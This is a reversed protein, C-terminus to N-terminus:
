AGAEAAIRSVVVKALSDYDYGTRRTVLDNVRTLLADDRQPLARAMKTLGDATASAGAASLIEAVENLESPGYTDLFSDIGDKDCSVELESLLFVARELPALAAAGAQEGRELAANIFEEVNM